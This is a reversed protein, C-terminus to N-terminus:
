LDAAATAHLEHRDLLLLPVLLTLAIEKPNTILGGSLLLSTVLVIKFPAGTGLRRIGAGCAALFPVALLGYIIALMLVTSHAFSNFGRREFQNLAEEVSQTGTAGSVTVVDLGVLLSWSRGLVSLSEAATGELEAPPAVAGYEEGGSTRQSWAAGAVALLACAALVHTWRASRLAARTLFPAVLFLIATRSGSLLVVAAAGGALLKGARESIRPEARQLEFVAACFALGYVFGTSNVNLNTVNLRLFDGGEALRKALVAPITLANLGLIAVLVRRGEDRDLWAFPLLALAAGLPPMWADATGLTGAWWAAGASAAAFATLLLAIRVIRGDRLSRRELWVPLLAILWLPQVCAPMVEVETLSASLQGKLQLVSFAASPLLSLGVLVAPLLM